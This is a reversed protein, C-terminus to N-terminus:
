VTQSCSSEATQPIQEPFPPAPTALGTTRKEFGVVVKAM